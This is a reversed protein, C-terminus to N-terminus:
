TISNKFLEYAQLLPDITNKQVARPPSEWPLWVFGEKHESSARVDYEGKLYGVFFIVTKEVLVGGFRKYRPYYVVSFSFGDVINIADAKIDTEEQLERLATDMDTESGEQHGKPLDYRDSHKMLLFQERGNPRRRLVLFGCSRVTITKGDSALGTRIERQM